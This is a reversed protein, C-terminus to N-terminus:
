KSSHGAPVKDLMNKEKTLDAHLLSIFVILLLFAAVVLARGLFIRCMVAALIGGSVFIAIMEIHSTFRMFHTNDERHKLWKVFYIGTQRLHNTCFTTAMPINEAQRFTNYQMSCIFNIAVQSIQVPASEPLMALLIIVIVEFGVLVTDWRINMYRKIKSPIIESICTGSFYAIIPIFFYLAHGFEGKGVALALFVFNATQANCFVGGRLLVTFAGLYGSVAMLIAFVWKKECQLFFQEKEYIVGHIM